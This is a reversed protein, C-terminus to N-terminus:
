FAWHPILSGAEPQAALFEFWEAVWCNMARGLGVHAPSYPKQILEDCLSYTPFGHGESVTPIFFSFYSVFPPLTFVCLKVKVCPM